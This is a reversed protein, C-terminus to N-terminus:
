ITAARIREALAERAVADPLPGASPDASPDASLDPDVQPLLEGSAPDVTVRLVEHLVAVLDEAPATSVLVGRGSDSRVEVRRYPAWALGTPDGSEELVVWVQGAARAAAIRDRRVAQVQQLVLRRGAMACGARGAQDPDIGAMPLRTEDAVRHVLPWGTAGEAAAREVLAVPDPCEHLLATSLRGVLVVARQYLEPQTMVVQYLGGEAQEWGARVIPPIM